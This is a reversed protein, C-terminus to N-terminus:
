FEFNHFVRVTWNGLAVSESAIQELLPPIDRPRNSRRSLILSETCTGEDISGESCEHCHSFMVSAVLPM